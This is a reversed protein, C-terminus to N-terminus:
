PLTMRGKVTSRRRSQTSAGGLGGDEGFFRQALFGPEVGVGKEELFRALKEVVGRGEVQLLEHAILVVDALVEAGVEPRRGATRSIKTWKSNGRGSRGGRPLGAQEVEDGLFERGDVQVGVRHAVRLHAGDELLEDALEGLEGVLGGALV